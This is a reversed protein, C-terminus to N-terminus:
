PMAERRADFLVASEAPVSPLGPLAVVPVTTCNAVLGLGEAEIVVVGGAQRLRVVRGAMAAAQRIVDALPGKAGLPGDPMALALSAVGAQAAVALAAVAYAAAFGTPQRPDDMAMPLRLGDPNPAVADGYPNCRM